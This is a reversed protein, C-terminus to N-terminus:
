RKLVLDLMRQAGRGDDEIFGRLTQMITLHDKASLSGVDGASERNIELIADQLLQMGSRVDGQVNSDNLSRMVNMIVFDPDADQVSDLFSLAAAIVGSGPEFAPALNHALPETTPDEKKLQLFDAVVVLMANYSDDPANNGLLHAILGDVLHRLQADGMLALLLKKAQSIGPERGAELYDDEWDVAWQALDGAQRHAKLHSMAFDMASDLIAKVRPRRFGWQGQVQEVELLHELLADTAADSVELEEPYQLWFIEARLGATVWQWAPSLSDIIRGSPLTLTATDDINRLQPNLEPLMVQRMGSALVEDGMMPQTSRDISEVDVMTNTIRDLIDGIIPLIEGDTITRQIFPELRVMGSKPAYLVDQPNINQVINNQPSAWQRHLSAMLDVLLKLQGHDYFARVIPRMADTFGPKELVFATGRHMESILLGDITVGPESIDALFDTQPTFILRILSEPTPTTGFGDLGSMLELLGDLGAVVAVLPDKFVLEAEGILSEMYFVITNDVEILQCEDFSGGFLPYTTIGLDLKAGQKNCFPVGNLDHVMHVLRQFISQNDRVDSQTRDVPTLFDGIPPANIDTPDYDIYDKYHMTTAFLEALQAMEPQQLTQLVAELLDPERLIKELIVLTDESMTSGPEMEGQYEPLKAWSKMQWLLNAIKALSPEENEVLAQIMQVLHYTADKDVLSAIARNALASDSRSSDFGSYHYISGDLRQVGLVIEPGLTRLGPVVMDLAIQPQTQFLPRLEELAVGFTTKSIDYYEFYLEGTPTLWRGFADRSASVTEDRVRFPTEGRLVQGDSGLFEGKANVDALGDGDSDIFPAVIRAMALGRDDRRVVYVPKSSEEGDSKALLWEELTPSVASADVTEPAFTELEYAEAQLFSQFAEHAYGGSSLSSTLTNLMEGVEEYGLVPKSLGGSLELPLYGRRISIQELAELAEPSGEFQQLLSTLNDLLLGLRGEDIAPMSNQIITNLAESRGEFAADLTAIIGERRQHMAGLRAGYALLPTEGQRCVGKAREGSIDGDIAGYAMHECLTAYLEAGISLPQPSSRTTDFPGVCAAAITVVMSVLALIKM